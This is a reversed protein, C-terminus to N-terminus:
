RTALKAIGNQVRRLEKIQREREAISKKLATISKKDEEKKDEDKINKTKRSVKKEGMEGVEFGAEEPPPTADSPAATVEELAKAVAGANQRHAEGWDKTRAADGFFQSADKCAQRHPHMTKGMTMPEDSIVPNPNQTADAAQNEASFDGSKHETESGEEAWFQPDGVFESKNEAAMDEIQGMGELTKHYHFSKMRSEEDLQEMGSLAKAHEAAEGVKALEHEELGKGFMDEKEPVDDVPSDSAIMDDEFDKRRALFGGKALAVIEDARFNAIDGNPGGTGDANEIDYTGDPLVRRVVGVGQRNPTDQVTVKDGVKPHLSKRLRRLSKGCECPEKGCPCASKRFARLRKTEKEEEEELAKRRARLLKVRRYLRKTEMGELAEEATPESDPDSDAPVGNDDMTDMDKAETDEFEDGLDDEVTDLEDGLADLEGEVEGAEEDTLDKQDTEGVIHHAIDPYHKTVASEWEDLDSTIGELKKQLLKSIEVKELPGHHEDYDQLLQKHDEIVRQAVQAGYPWNGPDSMDKEETVDDLELDEDM